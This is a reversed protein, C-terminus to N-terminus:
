LLNIRKNYKDASEKDFIDDLYKGIFDEPKGGLNKAAIDNYMIIKGDLDHYGIGVGSHKLILRFKEESDRLAEEAKKRESVDDYMAVIEGSPLKYVYNEVWQSIREDKYLTTPHYEPKGTDYVRKFVDFLGIEKVSPFVELVSKGKIEEFKVKSKEEGARNLGKFIFDNGNDKVEYIAVCTSMNNYLERYREESEKLKKEAIKRETIDQISALAGKYEGNSGFIPSTVISAYFREGNKKMFEFDHQEKVGSKRRELYKKAIEIGNEDMFDFLHKGIMEEVSYGLMDAMKPNVFSTCENEDIIWIGEQLSEILSRHKNESQRLIEENKKKETLDYGIIAIHTVEGNDDLIPYLNNEIIRGSRVDEFKVPLKASIVRKVYEKRRSSTERDILNYICAGIIKDKPIQLRKSVTDNAEIVIGNKDILLISEPIGNVFAKLSKETKILQNETNKRDTIDQATFIVGKEPNDKEIYSSSLIVNLIKGSKTRFRTEVAGAISKKMKQYKEKGVYEYDEDTPYVIRSNKGILEERSYELMDCLFDNVFIFVRNIVIGIGIPAAKSIGEIMEKYPITSNPIKYNNDDLTKKTIEKLLQM